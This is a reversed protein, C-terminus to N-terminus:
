FAIGIYPRFFQGSPKFATKELADQNSEEEEEVANDPYSNKSGIKSLPYTVGIWDVGYILTETGFRTGIGFEGVAVEEETRVGTEGETTRVDYDMALKRTGIGFNLYAMSGIFHKYRVLILEATLTALLIKTEGQAYSIEWLSTPDVGFGINAGTTQIPYVAFGIPELSLSYSASGSEQAQSCVPIILM